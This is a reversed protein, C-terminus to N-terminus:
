PEINQSKIYDNFWNKLELAGTKDATTREGLCSVNHLNYRNKFKEYCGNSAKFNPKTDEKCLSALIRKAKEQIIVGDIEIDKDNCDLIWAYLM